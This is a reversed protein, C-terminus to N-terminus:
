SGGHLLSVVSGSKTDLATDHKYRIVVDWSTARLTLIDMVHLAIGIQKEKAFTSAM